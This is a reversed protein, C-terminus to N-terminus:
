EWGVWRLVQDAERPGYHMEHWMYGSAHIIDSLDILVGNKWNRALSAPSYGFGVRWLFDTVEKVAAPDNGDETEKIYEYIIAIHDGNSSIFRRLRDDVWPQPRAHPPWTNLTSRSIKVWGYCQRMRPMKSIIMPEFKANPLGAQRGEQSFMYTNKLAHSRRKPNPNIMIPPGEVNEIAAQIQQLIANNQSERQPAHYGSSSTYPSCSGPETDWFLKLAYLRDHGRIRIKWSCGDWGTGIRRSHRWDISNLDFVCKRLRPTKFDAATCSLPESMLQESLFPVHLLPHM